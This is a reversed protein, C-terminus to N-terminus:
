ITRLAEVPLIRRGQREKAAITSPATENRRSTEDKIDMLDKMVRSLDGVNGSSCFSDHMQRYLAYIREYIAVHEPIPRYVLDLVGTMREIATEFGPYAGTIVAAAIAGGLACTESNRSIYLPKNVIDAYIQMFLRDKRPIGGCVIIKDIPLGNAEMQDHIVRAGFATAEILARYIEGPKSHLTLGLILGSLRQDVLITRNGNMWDLALLGSEGPRLAAAEASLDGYSRNCPRVINVFWNFIDGVASQGAEIGYYDPLISDRVIGAMGPVILKGRSLPSVMLDCTSTGITKVLIGPKIGAGIGGYHADFAPIAVMVPKPLGFKETWERSLMFGSTGAHRVREPDLTKKLGVLDPSLAALFDDAPYGGWDRDFLAKHGAPCIARVAEAVDSGGTLTFLLWDAVEIWTFARAFVQRDVHLCHLVKSWYWESSYIGGVLDLYEPRLAKATATIEEAEAWASHDKWLWIHANQNNAFDDLFVLPTGDRLVPLITSGTTDFGIGLVKDKDVGGSEAATALAERVTHAFGDLYDQPNQRAVLPNAPDHLCGDVGCRYKYTASAVELGDAIRIVAARVSATGFDVGIVFCDQHNM